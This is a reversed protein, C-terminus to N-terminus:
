KLLINVRRLGMRKLAVRMVFRINIKKKKKANMNTYSLAVVLHLTLPPMIGSPYDYELMVLEYNRLRLKKHNNIGLKIVTNKEMSVTTGLSSTDADPYTILEEKIENVNNSHVKREM